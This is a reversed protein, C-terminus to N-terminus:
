PAETWLDSVIIPVNMTLVRFTSDDQVLYGAETRMKRGEIGRVDVAMAIGELTFGGLLSVYVQAMADTLNPDIADLPEMVLRSYGRVNYTFVASTMNMGSTRSPEITQVWIAATLGTVAPASVPEHGNVNEFVGLTLCRTRLGETIRSPLTADYSM